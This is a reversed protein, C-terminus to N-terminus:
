ELFERLPCAPCDPNRKHCYTRVTRAILRRCEAYVPTEEPLARIFIDCIEEYGAEEGVFGHRHLLRWARVDAAFVPLGLAHLLILDASERGIGRIKLLEERLEGQGSDRLCTLDADELPEDEGAKRALFALFNHLRGVKAQFFALPRIAEELSARPLRWIFAPTLPAGGRLDRLRRLIKEMRGEPLAEQGLLVELAAEFASLAPRRPPPGFHKLM